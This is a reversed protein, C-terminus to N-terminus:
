NRSGTMRKVAFEIPTSKRNIANCTGLVGVSRVLAAARTGTFWDSYRDARSAKRSALSSRRSDSVDNGVEVFAVELSVNCVGDGCDILHSDSIGGGVLDGEVNVSGGRGGVDLRIELTGNSVEDSVSHSRSFDMQFDVAVLLTSVRAGDDGCGAYDTFCPTAPGLDDNSAETDNSRIV